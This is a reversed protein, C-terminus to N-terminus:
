RGMQEAISMFRHSFISLHITDLETTINIRMGQGITIRIDGKPTILGSCNPEILVTSLSDMIIAPGHVVHGNTLSSMQYVKTPQYGGEFYVDVLKEFKPSDISSPLDKEVPVGSKGIGRVRIDNVLIKRGPM